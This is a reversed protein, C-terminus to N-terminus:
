ALRRENVSDGRKPTPTELQLPCEFSAPKLVLVDCPLLDLVRETTSGVLVNYMWGRAYAGMVLLDINNRRVFVVLADSPAGSMLHRRAEPVDHSALLEDFEARVMNEQDAIVQAPDVGSAMSVARVTATAALETVSTYAHVAHLLGGTALAFTEAAALLSHDLAAPKEGPRAVDVAAAIRPPKSWHGPRVLLLPAPCMRILQWDTNALVSRRLLTHPHTEKIVLSPQARLVKRVIGTHLSADSAEDTCTEIGLERLGSALRELEMEDARIEGDRRTYCIFLEVRAAFALALDRARALAPHQEATPDIIVLIHRPREM